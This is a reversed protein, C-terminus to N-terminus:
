HRSPTAQSPVLLWQYAEPIRMTVVHDANDRQSEAQSVQHPSLDLRKQDDLISVWALYRRVAEDLDQLRSKDVALFALTNRYFRQASGRTEFIAQAASEAPNHPERFIPIRDQSYGYASRPRRFM